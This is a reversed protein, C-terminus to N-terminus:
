KIKKDLLKGNKTILNLYPKRIRKLHLTTYSTDFSLSIKVEFKKDTAKKFKDIVGNLEYLKTNKDLEINVGKIKNDLKKM